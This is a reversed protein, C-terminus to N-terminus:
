YAPVYGDSPREYDLWTRREDNEAFSFGNGAFCCRIHIELCNLVSVNSAQEVEAVRGAVQDHYM